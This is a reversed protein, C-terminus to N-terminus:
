IEATETVGAFRYCLREVPRLLPHLFTREGAFLRALFPGVPKVLVTVLLFYFLIPFVGNTTM